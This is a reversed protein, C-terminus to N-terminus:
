LSLALCDLVFCKLDQTRMKSVAYRVDSFNLPSRKRTKLIGMYIGM